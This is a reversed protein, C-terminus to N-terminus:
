GAPRADPERDSLERELWERSLRWDRKVTGASVGLTAATEAITLGLFFRCEVVRCRREDLVELRTLAEDLALLEDLKPDIWAHSELFAVRIAEGGRKARHRWRAHDILIRRMLRSAVALFHSRDRWEVRYIEVVRLYLEHVLATSDLAEPSSEHAVHQHAIARLEEYVLPILEDLAEESGASMEGLLVRIDAESARGREM